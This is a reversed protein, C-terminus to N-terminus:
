QKRYQALAQQYIEQYRAAATRITPLQHPIAARLKALRARDACIQHLSGRLDTLSSVVVGGLVARESLAGRDSVLAPVGHALAEEVVLGYTEQCKSPFVALHLGEAPHAVAPDFAGHCVLDVGLERARSRVQGEFAPVLFSGSLHLECDLGAAAEVLEMVGKQEVLNGFSGVRLREGEAPPKSRMSEDVDRLLGHGIVEIGGGWPLHEQVMRACTESPATLLSAAAVETRIDHDRVRIATAVVDLDDRRLELNVCKACEARDDGTPCTIGDPPLRFYRACTVWADHFTLVSPIGLEQAQGLQRGGWGALSHVHILDPRQEALLERVLRLLRPRHLGHQDWEDLKKFVRLVPVGDYEERSLDTGNHVIESTTLVVVEIGADRLARALAVVVMETGALIEPPYNSTMLAIKRAPMAHIETPLLSL